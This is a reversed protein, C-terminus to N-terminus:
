DIGFFNRLNESAISSPIIECSLRSVNWISVWIRSIISVLIFRKQTSKFFASFTHMCILTNSDFILFQSLLIEENLSRMLQISGMRRSMKSNLASNLLCFFSSMIIFICMSEYLIFVSFRCISKVLFTSDSLSLKFNMSPITDVSFISQWLVNLSKSFLM